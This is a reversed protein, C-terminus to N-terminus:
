PKVDKNFDDITKELESRKKSFVEVIAQLPSVKQEPVHDEDVPEMKVDPAVFLGKSNKSAGAAMYPVVCGRDPERHTAEEKLKSVIDELIRM